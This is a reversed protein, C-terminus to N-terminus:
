VGEDGTWRDIDAAWTEGYNGFWQRVYALHRLLREIHAAAQIAAPGQRLACTDVLMLAEMARRLAERVYATDEPTRLM